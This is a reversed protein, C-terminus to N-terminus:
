VRRERRRRGTAFPGDRLRGRPEHAPDSGSASATSHAFVGALPATASRNVVLQGAQNSGDFDYYSVTLVRLDSLSVPCGRHWAARKVEAKAPGSLPQILSHFPALAVALVPVAFRRTV